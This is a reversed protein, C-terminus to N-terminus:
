ARTYTAVITGADTLLQLSRGEVRYSRASPLAALYAAEQEMVGQPAACAKETAAPEDIEIRGRDRTYAARYTNCGASGSLTGDEDFTATIETGAILTAVANGQLFATAEWSGVPTAEQFRLLEAEDDDLLVLEGDESRWSTVRELLAVFEREVADAPAPM